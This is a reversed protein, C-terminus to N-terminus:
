KEIDCPWFPGIELRGDRLMVLTNGDNSLRPLPINAVSPSNIVCVRRWTATEYIEVPSYIRDTQRGGFLYGVILYRGKAGFAMDSVRWVGGRLRDLDSTENEAYVLQSPTALRMVRFRASNSDGYGILGTNEDWCLAGAAFAVQHDGGQTTRSTAEENQNSENKEPRDFDLREIMEGASSILYAANGEFAILVCSQGKTQVFAGLCKRAMQGPLTKAWILRQAGDISHMEVIAPGLPDKKMAVVRVGRRGDPSFGWGLVRFDETDRLFERHERRSTFEPFDDPSNPLVTKSSGVGNGILRGQFDFIETHGELKRWDGIPPQPPWWVCITDSDAGIRFDGCPGGYRDLAVTVPKGSWKWDGTRILPSRDTAALGATWLSFAGIAIRLYSKM